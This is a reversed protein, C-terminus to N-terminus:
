NLPRWEEEKPHSTVDVISRYEAASLGGREKYEMIANQTAENVSACGLLVLAALISLFAIHRM